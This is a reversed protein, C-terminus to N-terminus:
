DHPKILEPMNNCIFAIAVTIKDIHPILDITLFSLIQFYKLRRIAREVHIRVSSCQYGQSNEFSSFQRNGRKFPPMVLFAGADNLDPEIQPFGKDALVVDGPQLLKLFGSKNTIFTDTARGGFCKSIFTFEGSPAVGVLFKVTESSKYTSYSQVQQQLTQPTKCKIETADIIVRCNPFSNKFSEPMRASIVEKPYWFILKRAHFYMIELTESFIRSITRRHLCFMSALACYTLNTKLKILFILLYKEVQTNSQHPQKILDRLVM